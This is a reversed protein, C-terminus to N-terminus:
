LFLKQKPFYVYPQMRPTPYCAVPPARTVSAPCPAQPRRQRAADSCPWAGVVDPSLLGTRTGNPGRCPNRGPKPLPLSLPVASPSPRGAGWWRTGRGPSPGAGPRGSGNARLGRRLSCVRPSDALSTPAAPPARLELGPHPNLPPSHLGGPLALGRPVWQGRPRPFRRWCTGAASGPWSHPRTKTGPM